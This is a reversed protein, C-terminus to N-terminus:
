GPQSDRHIEMADGSRTASHIWHTDPLTISSIARQSLAGVTFFEGAEFEPLYGQDFDNFYNVYQLNRRKISNMPHWRQLSNACVTFINYPAWALNDHRVNLPCNTSIYFSPNGAMNGAPLGVCLWVTKSKIPLCVYKFHAKM